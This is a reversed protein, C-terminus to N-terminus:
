SHTNWIEKRHVVFPTEKPVIYSIFHAFVDNGKSSNFSFTIFHDRSTIDMITSHAMYHMSWDEQHIRIIGHIRIIKPTPFQKTSKLGWPLVLKQFKSLVQSFSVFGQPIAWPPITVPLISGYILTNFM